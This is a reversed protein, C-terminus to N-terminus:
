LVSPYRPRKSITSPFQARFDLLRATKRLHRRYQMCPIGGGDSASPAQFKCLFIQHPPQCFDVLRCNVDPRVFTAKGRKKLPVGDDEAAKACTTHSLNIGFLLYVKSAAKCCSLKGKSVEQGAWQYAQVYLDWPDVKVDEQRRPASDERQPANVEMEICFGKEKLKKLYCAIHKKPIIWKGEAQTSRQSSGQPHGM